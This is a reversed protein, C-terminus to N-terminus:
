KLNLIPWGRKEALRRLRRDPNTAFPHGVAELMPLDSLSDSYARCDAPSVKYKECLQKISKVKADGAIVPEILKGTAEGQRFELHNCIVETFGLAKIVPGLTTSLTGTVLVSRYGEREDSELLERAGAFIAPGILTEFMEPAVSELWDKKMGRYEKFFVVNFAQRSYADLALLFPVSLLLKVLKLPNSKKICWAYQNVVNTSVLTGDFDYFALGSEPM